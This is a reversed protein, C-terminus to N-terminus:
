DVELSYCRVHASTILDKRSTLALLETILGAARGIDIVITKSPFYIDLM